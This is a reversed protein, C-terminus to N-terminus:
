KYGNEILYDEDFDRLYPDFPETNNTRAFLKNNMRYWEVNLMYWFSANYGDYYHLGEGDPENKHFYVHTEVPCEIHYKWYDFIMKTLKM